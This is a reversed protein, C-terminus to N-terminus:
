AAVVDATPKSTSPAGRAGDSRVPEVTVKFACGVDEPGVRRGRPDAAAAPTDPPPIPALPDYPCPDSETRNGDADVRIWSYLCAAAVGGYYVARAHLTEGVRAEGEVWVERIRPPAPEVPSQTPALLFTTLQEEQSSNAASTTVLAGVTHGVDRLTLVYQTPDLLAAHAMDRLMRLAAASSYLPSDAHHAADPAGVAAVTKAYSAAPDKSPTLLEPHSALLSPVHPLAFVDERSRPPVRVM